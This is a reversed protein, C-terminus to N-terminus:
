DGIYELFQVGVKEHPAFRVVRCSYKPPCLDPNDCLMLTCFENTGLHSLKSHDIRLLAGDLSINELIVHYDDGDYNLICQSGCSIRAARTAM